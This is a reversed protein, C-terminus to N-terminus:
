RDLLTTQRDTLLSCQLFPQVSRSATQTSFEPPGLFVYILHPRSAEHSPAIKLPSPIAWQLTYPFEATLQAVHSFYYLHRKILPNPCKTAWPLMPLPLLLPPPFLRGMTFYLSERGHARYFVASSISISNPIQGWSPGFFWTNSPDGSQWMCLHLARAHCVVSQWSCHLIASGISIGNPNLVRTPGLFCTNCKYPTCLRAM